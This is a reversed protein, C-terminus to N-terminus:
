VIRDAREIRTVKVEKVAHDAWFTLAYDGIIKIQVPNGVDDREEYDGPKFPNTALSEIFSLIQERERKAPRPLQLFRVSVLVKYPQL